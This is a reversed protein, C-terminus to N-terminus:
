TRLRMRCLAKFLSLHRHRIIEDLAIQNITRGEQEITIAICYLLGVSPRFM